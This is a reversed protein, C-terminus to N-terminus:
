STTSVILLYLFLTFVKSVLNPFYSRLKSVYKEGGYIEGAALYIWTSEPYGM